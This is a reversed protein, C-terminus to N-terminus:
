HMDQNRRIAEEESAYPGCVLHEGNGVWFWEGPTCRVGYMDSGRAQEVRGQTFTRRLSLDPGSPTTPIANYLRYAADEASRVKRLIDEYYSQSYPGEYIGSVFGTITARHSAIVDLILNLDAIM